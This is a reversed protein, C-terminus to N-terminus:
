LQNEELMEFSEEALNILSVEGASHAEFGFEVTAWSVDLKDLTQEMKDEKQARDVVEGVDDVYNQLNLKLLDDLAFTPNKVDISVKTVEMLQDWHRDRMSPSKLDSVCPVSVLFNKIAQDVTRYIDWDRAEKPLGRVLKQFQKAEEELTSAVIDNWLIKKWAEIQSDVM